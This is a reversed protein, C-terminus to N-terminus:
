IRELVWGQWYGNHSKAEAGASLRILECDYEARYLAPAAPSNGRFIHIKYSHSGEVLIRNGIKLILLSTYLRSGGATQLGYRLTAQGSRTGAQRRAYRAAEASFAVWAGDIRGQEHLSLWFERRPEWMHSEEVASVVDLFFRINEGTLWRLVVARHHEPVGAWAGSASVRPDGYCGVLADIIYRQDDASPDTSLWHGLVASIAQAAGSFRPEQREPRLWGFLRKLEARDRLGPRIAEVFSLHAHDMLGPAHPMTLGLAKLENWPDAMGAMLGAIAEHGHEPDLWSPLAQELKTWRGGLRSRAESLAQALARTHSAGPEYSGIYVSAMAGLFSRRTSVRLEDLYFQRLAALEARSRRVPDFLARAARTVFSTPLDEWDDEVLRRRMEEVLRDRDNEPPEAVVDPWRELVRRASARLRSPDALAPPNFLVSQNLLAALKM